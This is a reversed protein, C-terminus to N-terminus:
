IILNIPISIINNISRISGHSYFLNGIVTVNPSTRDINKMIGRFSSPLSGRGLLVALYFGVRLPIEGYGVHYLKQM